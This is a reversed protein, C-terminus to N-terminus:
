QPSTTLAPDLPAQTARHTLAQRQSLDHPGMDLETSLPSDAEGEAEAGGGAQARESVFLKKFFPEFKIKYSM